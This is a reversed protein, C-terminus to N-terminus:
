LTAKGQLLPVFEQVYVEETLPGVHKYRIVGQRDILFTEPVGYVGLDMGVRGREDFLSLRYPDGFHNLWRIADPRNDKYNLGYIDVDGRQEIDMLLQHEERCAFCWSAWVNILIPKGLLDSHRVAQGAQDLRTLEFQPLPKNILASPLLRPDLTLGVALFSALVVFVALPILKGKM